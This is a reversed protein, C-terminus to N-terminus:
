VRLGRQIQYALTAAVQRRLEAAFFTRAVELGTRVFQLRRDLRVTPKFLYLLRGRKQGPVHQFIGVNPIEYTDLLGQRVGGRGARRARRYIASETPRTLNLQSIRLPSPIMSEQTPRAGGVVPIAVNAGLRGGRTGGAEFRPLLLGPRQGVSIVAYFRREPASAFPKVIAAQRLIFARQARLTFQGAERQQVRRQVELATNNIANVVAFSMRTAANQLMALARVADVEVMFTATM